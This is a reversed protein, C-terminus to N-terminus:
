PVTGFHGSECVMFYVRGDTTEREGEPVFGAKAYAAIARANAPDPDIVFRPVGQAFGHRLFRRLFASGHGRGLWEPPGIFPDVGLTGPPQDPFPVDEPDGFVQWSQVYAFPDGDRSVVYSAVWPLDLGEEILAIEHDPDGWWEMVHPQALWDRLLGLDTVAVPSFRYGDAEFSGNM